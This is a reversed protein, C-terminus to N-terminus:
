RGVVTVPNSLVGVESVDVVIRDGERLTFDGEPVV